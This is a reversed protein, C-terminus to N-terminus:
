NCTAPGVKGTLEAYTLRKGLLHSAVHDFRLADHRLKRLNYRFMQKDLYRFLHFPEVSIYTGKLGRKLISWFNEPTNTHVRGNVYCEAHDVVKHYLNRRKLEHYSALNDTYVNSDEEVHRAIEREIHHRRRNPIVEARIEGGRKLMGLVTTKDGTGREVRIRRNQHMFRAAGGIFTEDVEVESGNGGIKVTSRNQMALRIRHLMFWASKQTIGLARGVEYSSIGNKCNAIMWMAVLWKDLPLASDEMITGVKASFQKRPHKSKCEWLRRTPLWRVEKSACTPCTVGNPWRREVLFAVSNDPNSFYAIAQQLTKPKRM